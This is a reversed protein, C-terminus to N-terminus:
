TGKPHWGWWAETDCHSCRINVAVLERSGCKSCAFRSRLGSTPTNSQLKEVSELRNDLEITRDVAWKDLDGLRTDLEKFQELVKALEEQWLVPASAERIDRDLRTIALAKQYRLVLPDRSLDGLSVLEVRTAKPMAADHKV